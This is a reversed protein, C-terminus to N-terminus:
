LMHPHAKFRLGAKRGACAVIVQVADVSTPGGSNTCVQAWRAADPTGAGGALLDLVGDVIAVSNAPDLGAPAVMPCAEVCKGCRPCADLTDEVRAKVAEM